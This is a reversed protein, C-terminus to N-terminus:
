EEIKLAGRGSTADSILAALRSCDTERVRGRLEVSTGFEEATISVGLASLERRVRDHADYAVSLSFDRTEVLEGSACAGLAAKASETYAKVLGGTGLLTGGFWRAVTIMANTIGSGKLVELVPRGATGSPEGDDSCGLIGGTPGIVFAHVIHTADRYKEKQEKLLARAAEQSEVIFTESLFRSGRVDLEAAGCRTLILM